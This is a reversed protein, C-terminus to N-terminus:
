GTRTLFPRAVLSARDRTLPPAIGSIRATCAPIGCPCTPVADFDLTLHCVIGALFFPLLNWARAAALSQRAAPNGSSASGRSIQNSSEALYPGHATSDSKRGDTTPATLRRSAPGRNSPSASAFM